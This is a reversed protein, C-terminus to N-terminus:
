DINHLWINNSNFWNFFLDLHFAGNRSGYNPQEIGHWKCHDEGEEREFLHNFKLDEALDWILLYKRARKRQTRCCKPSNICYIHSLWICWGKAKNHKIMCLLPEIKFRYFSQLLHMLFMFGGWVHMCLKRWTFDVNSLGPCIMLIKLILKDLWTKLTLILLIYIIIIIFPRSQCLQCSIIHNHALTSRLHDEM